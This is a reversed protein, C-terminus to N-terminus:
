LLLVLSLFFIPWAHLLVLSCYSCLKWLFRCCSSCCFSLVRYMVNVTATLNQISPPFALAKSGFSGVSEKKASRSAELNWSFSSVRTKKSVALVSDKGNLEDWQHLLITHVDATVPEVKDEGAIIRLVHAVM